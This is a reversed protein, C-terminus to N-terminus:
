NKVFKDFLKWGKLFDFFDFKELIIRIKKFTKELFTWIKEFEKFLDLIELIEL